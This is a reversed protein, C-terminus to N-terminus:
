LSAWEIGGRLAAARMENFLYWIHDVLEHFSGHMLEYREWVSSYVMTDLLGASVKFYGDQTSDIHVSASNSPSSLSLAVARAICYFFMFLIDRFRVLPGNYREEDIFWYGVEEICRHFRQVYWNGGRQPLEGFIESWLIYPEVAKAFHGLDEMAELDFAPGSVEDWGVVGFVGKGPWHPWLLFDVTSLLVWSVIANKNGIVSEPIM